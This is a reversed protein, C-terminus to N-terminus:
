NDARFARLPRYSAPSPKKSVVINEMGLLGGLKFDFKM